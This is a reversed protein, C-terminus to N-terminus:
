PQICVQLGQCLTLCTRAVDFCGCQICLCQGVLSTNRPIALCLRPVAFIHIPNCLWCPVGPPVPPSCALPPFIPLLPAPVGFVVFPVTPPPCPPVKDFCITTGLRPVGVVNCPPAGPCGSGPIPAVQASIAPACFAV